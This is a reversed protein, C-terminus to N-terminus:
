MRRLTLADSLAAGSATNDFVCWIEAAAGAALREALEELYPLGYESYYMRPSGHLRRYVLGPWGGPDAAQPVPAPDAGVRAIRHAILLADADNEFWSPHRPECAVPGDHRARLTGFFGTALGAEFSLSPPLQVLLPGLRAGLAQIEALFSALPEAADALRREHTIAKPVKVAFRFEERVTVAWRAYTEPKHSRYFSSNIEASDFRAAYRALGSGSDPFHGAHRSPISWGATGIRIRGGSL